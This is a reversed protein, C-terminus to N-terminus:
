LNMPERKKKSCEFELNSREEKLGSEGQTSGIGLIECGNWLKEKDEV